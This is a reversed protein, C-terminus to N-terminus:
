EEEHHEEKVHWAALTPNAFTEGCLECQTKLAIQDEPVRPRVAKRAKTAKAPKRMM